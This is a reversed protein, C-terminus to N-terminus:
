IDCYVARELRRLIHEHDGAHLCRGVDPVPIYFHYVTCTMTLTMMLDYLLILIFHYQIIVNTTLTLGLLFMVACVGAVTLLKHNRLRPFKDLLSTTVTEVLVIQLLHKCTLISNCTSFDFNNRSSSIQIFNVESDVGLTILMLFFLISWLPAVPLQTVAFLYIVFTLSPGDKAVEDVPVGMFDSLHKIYSFIVFGAFESFLCNGLTM